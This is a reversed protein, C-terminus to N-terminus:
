SAKQRDPKRAKPLRSWDEVGGKYLFAAASTGPPIRDTIDEFSDAHADIFNKQLMYKQRQKENLKKKEFHFFDMLVLVTQGPIMAPSFLKVVRLFGSKSADDVYVSIPKDTPWTVDQIRGKYFHLDLQGAVPDFAQRLFPLTDDGERFDEIGRKQFSAVEGGSVEFRDHSHLSVARPDPRDLLGLALQATGAGMWAGVEVINTGAPADRAVSRLFPGIKTGGMSPLRAARAEFETFSDM